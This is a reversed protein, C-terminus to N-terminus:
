KKTRHKFTTAPHHKAYEESVFKGTKSSKTVKKCKMSKKAM